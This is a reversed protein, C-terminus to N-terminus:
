QGFVVSVDTDMMQQDTQQDTAVVGGALVGGQAAVAWARHRLAVTAVAVPRSVAGVGVPSIANVTM